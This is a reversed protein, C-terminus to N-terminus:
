LYYWFIDKKQSARFRLYMRLSNSKIKSLFFFFVLLSHPPLTSTTHLDGRPHEQGAEPCLSVAGSGPAIGASHEAWTQQWGACPPLMKACKQQSWVAALQPQPPDLPPSTRLWVLSCESDGSSCVKTCPSFTFGQSYFTSFM